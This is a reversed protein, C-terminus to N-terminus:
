HFGTFTFAASAVPKTLWIGRQSSRREAALLGAIAVACLVVPGVINM